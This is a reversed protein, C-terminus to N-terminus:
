RRQLIIINQVFYGEGKESGKKFFHVMEKKSPMM